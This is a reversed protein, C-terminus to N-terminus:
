RVNGKGACLRAFTIPTAPAALMFRWPARYGRLRRRRVRVIPRLRKAAFVFLLVIVRTRSHTRSRARACAMTCVIVVSYGYLWYGIDSVILAAHRM